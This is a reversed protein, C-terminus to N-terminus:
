IMVRLLLNLIQHQYKQFKIIILPNQHALDIEIKNDRVSSVNDIKTLKNVTETFQVVRYYSGNYEVYFPKIVWEELLITQHLLLYCMLVM